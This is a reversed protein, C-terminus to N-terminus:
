ASPKFIGKELLARWLKDRVFDRPLLEKPLFPDKLSIGLFERIIQSREGKENNEIKELLSKYEGNIRRIHFVRDVFEERNELFFNDSVFMYTNPLLERHFSLFRQVDEEIPLPSVYLSKQIMGFGFRQLSGRFTNRWGRRKEEIDFGLVRWKGDWRKHLFKLLPFNDIMFARGKPTIHFSGRTLSAIDGNAKLSHTISYLSPRRYSKPVFGYLNKYSFSLFGGPDRFERMFEDALTLGFLIATKIGM